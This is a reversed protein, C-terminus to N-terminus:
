NAKGIWWIQGGPVRINDTTGSSVITASIFLSSATTQGGGLTITSIVSSSGTGYSLQKNALLTFQTTSDWRVDHIFGAERVSAIMQGTTMNATTDATTGATGIRIGITATDTVGSKKGSTFIRAIHGVKWFGAPTQCQHGIIETNTTNASESDRSCLLAAGNLPQWAAGDDIVIAGKTGCDSCRVVRGATGAAPLSAFAYSAFAQPGLLTGGTLPLFGGDSGM